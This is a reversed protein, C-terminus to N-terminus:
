IQLAVDDLIPVHDFALSVRELALVAMSTIDRCTVTVYKHGLGDASRWFDHPCFFAHTRARPAWPWRPLRRAWVTLCVRPCMSRICVYLAYCMFRSQRIPFVAM